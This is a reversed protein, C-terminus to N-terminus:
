ITKRREMNSYNASGRSNSHSRSHMHKPGTLLLGVERELLIQERERALQEELVRIREEAEFLVWDKLNKQMVTGDDMVEVVEYDAEDIPRDRTQGLLLM